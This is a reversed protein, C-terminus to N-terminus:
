VSVREKATDALYRALMPGDYELALYEDVIKATRDDVRTEPGRKHPYCYLTGPVYTPGGLFTNLQVLFTRDESYGCREDMWGLAAWVRPPTVWVGGASPGYHYMDQGMYGLQTVKDHPFVVRQDEHAIQIAFKLSEPHPVSDADCLVVVDCAKFIDVIMNRAAARNPKPSHTVATWDYMGELEARTKRYAAIRTPENGFFPFGLAVKM